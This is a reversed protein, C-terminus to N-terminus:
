AVNGPASEIQSLRLIDQRVQRWEREANRIINQLRLYEHHETAKSPPWEGNVTHADFMEQALTELKKIAATIPRPARM